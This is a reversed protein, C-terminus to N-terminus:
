HTIGTGVCSCLCHAWVSATGNSVQVQMVGGDVIVQAGGDLTASNVNATPPATPNLVPTSAGAAAVSWPGMTATYVHGNVNGGGDVFATNDQCAVTCSWAYASNNPPLWQGCTTWANSSSLQVEGQGSITGGDLGAAAWTVSGANTNVNGGGLGFASSGSGALGQASGVINSIVTIGTGLHHETADSLSADATVRNDGVSEPASCSTVEFLGAMFMMSAFFLLVHKM